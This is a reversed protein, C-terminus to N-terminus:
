MNPSDLQWAYLGHFAQARPWDSEERIPCHLGRHAAGAYETVASESGLPWVSDDQLCLESTLTGGLWRIREDATTQRHEHRICHRWGCRSELSRCNCAPTRANQLWALVAASGEHRSETRWM